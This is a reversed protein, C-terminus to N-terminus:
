GPNISGVARAVERLRASDIELPLAHEARVLALAAHARACRRFDPHSARALAGLAKQLKIGVELSGAGYHALPTFADDYLDDISIAAIYVNPCAIEKKDSPDVPTAWVMMLRTLRGIVDIATGPDNTAPSLARSAVETLVCLGFRPDQDFTRTAGLTFAAEIDSRDDDALVTECLVLARSPDLFAGPRIQVRIDTKLRKAIKQLASVDIHRVYGVVPALVTMEVPHAANTNSAGAGAAVLPRAGLCPSCCEALASETAAREIRETTEGLRGFSSVHDIWRLLTVVILIVVGITVAFLVVRGSNGYIGSSLAILGVLSFLFSGIFTALMNQTSSDEILLKIARPTVNSAAGGYAAVLTSVSFTTVALMSSALISLINDVADAGVRTTIDDPIYPKVLIAFLATAVALVSFATARFWLKRTIQTLLWQWRTM